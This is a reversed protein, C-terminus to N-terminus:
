LDERGYGGDGFWYKYQAKDCSISIKKGNNFIFTIGLDIRGALDQVSCDQMEVNFTEFVLNVLDEAYTKEKLEKEIIKIDKLCSDDNFIFDKLKIRELAELVKNM